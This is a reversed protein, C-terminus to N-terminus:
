AQLMRHFKETLLPDAAMKAGWATAVQTYAAMDLGYRSLAGNMDGRQMDRLINVYDSLRQVREGPFVLPDADQAPDDAERQAQQQQAMRLHMDMEGARIEDLAGLEQQTVGMAELELRRELEALQDQLDPSAQIAEHWEPVEHGERRGRAYEELTMGAYRREPPRVANKTPLTEYYRDVWAELDLRRAEDYTGLGLWVEALVIEWATFGREPILTRLWGFIPEVEPWISADESARWGFALIAAGTIWDSPGYIMSYLAARASGTQWPGLHSLALATAVQCRWTWLFPDFPDDPGPVPPNTAVCLLAHYGEAGFRAAVDRAAADWRDRHFTLRAISAIAAQAAPDGQPHVKVLADGERRWVPTSLQAKDARPDPTQIEDVVVSLSGNAGMARMALDFAIEVSPSELYRSGITLGVHGGAGCCRIVHGLENALHRAAALTADGPAPLVNVYPYPPDAEDAFSRAQEDWWDRDRLTVLADREAEDGTAKWRLYHLCARAGPYDPDAAVIEEFVAAADGFRVQDVLAWAADHLPSYDGPSIALAERAQALADDARGADRYANLLGTRLRWDGPWRAVGEEAIRVTEEPEGLRRRILGEGYWLISEDTFVERLAAFTEAAARLNILRLDDDPAPVPVGVAVSLATRVVSEFVGEWALTSIVPPQLWRMVWHMYPVHPAAEIARGLLDLAEPLRRNMMLVRARAAATAVHVAGTAVPLTSLPDDTSTVIEDFTELYARENPYLMLLDSAFLTATQLEGREFAARARAQLETALQRREAQDRPISEPDLSETGTM